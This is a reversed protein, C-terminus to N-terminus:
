IDMKLNHKLVGYVVPILITIVTYLVILVGKWNKNVPKENAYRENLISVVNPQKYRRWFLGASFFMFIVIVVKNILIQEKIIIQIIIIIGLMTTFLLLALVFCGMALPISDRNKKYFSYVRYFVYDIMKM